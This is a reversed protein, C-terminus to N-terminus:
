TCMTETFSNLQAPRNLTITAVHGTVDFEIATYQTTATM